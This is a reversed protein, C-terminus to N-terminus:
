RRRAAPGSPTLDPGPPRRAQPILDLHADAVVRISDELERVLPDPEDARTAVGVALGPVDTLPVFRVRSSRYFRSTAATVTIVHGFRAVASLLSGMTDIEALLRPREEGNREAVLTWVDVWEPPMGDVQLWSEESVDLTQLAEADALPHGAPVVVARGDEFVPRWSVPRGAAQLAEAGAQTCGLVASFRGHALAAPLDPYDVPEAVVHVGPHAARFAGLVPATLEALGEHAIGVRLLGGADSAAARVERVAREALQLIEHARVLLRGGRETLEIARGRREFLILGLESELARVHLSVGQQTLGLRLAARGFHLDEAVAVFSRLHRFEM